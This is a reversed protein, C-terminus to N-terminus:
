PLLYFLNLLDATFDDVFSASAFIAVQNGYKIPVMRQYVAIEQLEGSIVIATMEEGAFQMQETSFVCNSYGASTLTDPLNETTIEIYEDLSVADGYIRGVNEV